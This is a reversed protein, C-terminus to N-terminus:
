SPTGGEHITPIVQEGPQLQRAVQPLEARSRQHRDRSRALPERGVIEGREVLPVLLPRDDGDNAAPHGIGVVEAEAVGDPSLRRLAYKRGGISIK